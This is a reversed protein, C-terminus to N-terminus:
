VETGGIREKYYKCKARSRCVIFYQHDPDHAVDDGYKHMHCDGRATGEILVFNLCSGCKGTLDIDKM